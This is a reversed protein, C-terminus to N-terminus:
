SPLLDLCDNDLVSGLSRQLIAGFLAVSRPNDGDFSAGGIVPILTMAMTNLRLDTNFRAADYDRVGGVRLGDLYRKALAPQWQRRVDEPVSTGLFYSFDWGPRLRAVLQWDIMAIKDSGPEVFVFNELRSDFHSIVLPPRALEAFIWDMSQAIRECAVRAEPSVFSALRQLTVPVCLRYDHIMNQMVPARTDPLWPHQSLDAGWHRAGLQAMADICCEAQQLTAGALQDPWHWRTMDQMVTASRQQTPEWESFYITPLPAAVEKALTQYFASERSYMEFRVGVARMAEFPPHLKVVVSEPGRASDYTLAYRAIASMQGIGEGVPTSSAGSIRVGRFDPHDKVAHQLWAVNVDAMSEPLPMAAVGAAAAGSGAPSLSRTNKSASRKGFLSGFM